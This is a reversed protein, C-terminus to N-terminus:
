TLFCPTFQLAIPMKKRKWIIMLYPVHLLNLFGFNRAKPSLRFEERERERPQVYTFDREAFVIRCDHKCYLLFHVVMVTPRRSNILFREQNKVLESRMEASLSYNIRVLTLEALVYTQFLEIMFLLFNLFRAQNNNVM